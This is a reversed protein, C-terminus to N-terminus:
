IEKRLKQKLLRVETELDIVRQFIENIVGQQNYAASPEKVEMNSYNAFVTISKGTEVAEEIAAVLNTDASIDTHLLTYENVKFFHAISILGSLNPNSRGTEYNNWTSDKIGLSIEMDGQKFGRLKRLFRLNKSFYKV